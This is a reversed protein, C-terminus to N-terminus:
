VPKSRGEDQPECAGRSFSGGWAHLNKAGNLSKGSKRAWQRECDANEVSQVEAVLFHDAGRLFVGGLVVAGGNDDGKIWV